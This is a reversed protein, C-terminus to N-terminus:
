AQKVLLFLRKNRIDDGTLEKKMYIPRLRVLWSILAAYLSLFFLEFGGDKRLRFSFTEDFEQPLASDGKEGGLEELNRRQGVLRFVVEKPGGWFLKKIWRHWSTMQLEKIEGVVLGADKILRVVEEREGFWTVGHHKEASENPFIIAGVGEEKLHRAVFSFFMGPCEVHELTDLSFVVDFKKGLLAHEDCVDLCILRLAAVEKGDGGESGDVVGYEGKLREIMEASKDVGWFERVSGKLLEIAKGAGVGIELVEMDSRFYIEEVLFYERVALGYYHIM